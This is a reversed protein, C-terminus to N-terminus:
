HRKRSVAGESPHIGARRLHKAARRSGTHLWLEYSRLLDADNSFSADEGVEALADVFDTFKQSLEAFVPSLAAARASRSTSSSLLGYASGGMAVYYDVDVHKRRLSHSFLGSIFLAVDGLRRLAHQREAANESFAADAYILALPKLGYGHESHEYLRDSRAFASLLNVVYRVAEPSADVKQNELASGLADRFFDEVSTSTIVQEAM